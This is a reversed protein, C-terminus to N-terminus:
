ENEGDDREIWNKGWSEKAKIEHLFSLSFIAFNENLNM